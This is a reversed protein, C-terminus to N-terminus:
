HKTTQLRGVRHKGDAVNWVFGVSEGVGRKNGPTIDHYGVGEGGEDYEEVEIVGPIEM